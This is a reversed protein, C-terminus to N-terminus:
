AEMLKVALYDRRSCIEKLWTRYSFIKVTRRNNPNKIGYQFFCRKTVRGAFFKGRVSEPVKESDLVNFFTRLLAFVKHIPNLIEVLVHTMFIDLESHVIKM